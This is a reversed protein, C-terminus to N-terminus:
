SFMVTQPHYVADIHTLVGDDGRELGAILDRYEWRDLKALAALPMIADKHAAILKDHAKIEEAQRDQELSYVQEGKNVGELKWGLQCKAEQLINEAGIMRGPAALVLQRLAGLADVAADPMDVSGLTCLLDSMAKKAKESEAKAEALAVGLAIIERGADTNCKDTERPPPPTRQVPVVYSKKATKKAPAKKSTAM